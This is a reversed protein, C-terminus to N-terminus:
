KWVGDDLQLVSYIATDDWDVKEKTLNVTEYYKGGSYFLPTTERCEAKLFYFKGVTVRPATDMTDDKHARDIGDTIALIQNLELSDKRYATKPHGIIQTIVSYRDIDTILTLVASNEAYYGFLIKSSTDPAGSVTSISIIPNDVLADRDFMYQGSSNGANFTSSNGNAYTVKVVWNGYQQLIAFYYAAHSLTIQSSSTNIMKFKLEQLNATRATIFGYKELNLFDYTAM